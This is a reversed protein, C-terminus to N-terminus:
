FNEENLEYVLQYFVRWSQKGSINSGSLFNLCINEASKPHMKNLMKVIKLIASVEAKYTLRSVAFSCIRDIHPYRTKSLRDRTILIVRVKNKPFSSECFQETSLNSFGCFVLYNDTNTEQKLEKLTPIQHLNM